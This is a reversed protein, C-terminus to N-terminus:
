ARAAGSKMQEGPPMMGAAFDGEFVILEPRILGHRLANWPLFERGGSAADVMLGDGSVMLVSFRRAKERGIGKLTIEQGPRFLDALRVVKAPNATRPTFIDELPVPSITGDECDLRVLGTTGFDSRRYGFRRTLVDKLSTM